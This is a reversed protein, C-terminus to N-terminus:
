EILLKSVGLTFFHNDLGQNPKMLGANSIHRFHYQATGYIPGYLKQQFGMIFNDSFIYGKHQKSSNVTIYHPGTGIAWYLRTNPSTELEYRLGFNCGFEIDNLKGSIFVPNFQPELYGIFHGKKNEINETKGLNWGFYGSLLIPQYYGEAMNENIFSISLKFGVEQRALRQNEQALGSYAFLSFLCILYVTNKM